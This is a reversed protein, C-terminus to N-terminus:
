PKPERYDRRRAHAAIDIKAETFGQEYDKASESGPPYIPGDEADFPRGIWARAYGLKYAPTRTPDRPETM